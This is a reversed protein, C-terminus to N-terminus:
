LAFSCAKSARTNRSPSVVWGLHLAFCQWRRSRCINLIQYQSHILIGKSCARGPGQQVARRGAGGGGRGLEAGASGGWGWGRERLPLM